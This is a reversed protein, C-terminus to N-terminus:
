VMTKKTVQVQLVLLHFIQMMVVFVMNNVKVTQIGDLSNEMIIMLNKKVMQGVMVLTNANIKGVICASVAVNQNAALNEEYVSPRVWKRM